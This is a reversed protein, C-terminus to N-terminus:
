ELIMNDDNGSIVNYLKAYTAEKYPNVFFVGLGWFISGLIYWGWFSIDLVFMHFKHGDTMQRSKRIVENPGLDPEESLIYPVMSYEYSKIIGPIILLLFWLFNYFRRLFQTMVVNWYERSNFISFLNGISVDNKFGKLFFRVKGVELAFGVTVLLISVILVMIASSGIFISRMPSNRWIRDANNVILNNSGTFVRSEIEEMQRVIQNSSSLNRNRSQNNNNGSNGATFITAILCVLFAKWYHERLFDKAYNKITERSWM